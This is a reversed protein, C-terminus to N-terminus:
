GPCTFRPGNWTFLDMFWFSSLIDFNMLFRHWIRSCLLLVFVIGGVCEFMKEPKQRLQGTFECRKNKELETKIEFRKRFCWIQKIKNKNKQSKYVLIEALFNNDLNQCIYNCFLGIKIARKHAYMFLERFNWIYITFIQTKEPHSFYILFCFFFFYKTHM